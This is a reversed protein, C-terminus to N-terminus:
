LPINGHKKKPNYDVKNELLEFADIIKSRTKHPMIVEDVFGREAALYPNAFKERFEEEFRSSDAEPDKSAAIEKKYIIEIAGKPGMVAIEATPWAFNFDSRIHKSNMVDYAGGYAKRTIVTIKPVTAESFAYLLKAGHKIIGRWEQDTGPLFGPVDEFVALPINFADCFRVFRAGKISSDSDLAGALYEPQNAVIGVSRGDFRAFGIVINKAFDRQIEFFEGEDVVSTIVEKMDYPKERKEPIISDLKPDERNKPDKCEIRPPDELNNQPIYSLLKRLTELCEVENECTFHSVGSKTGHTDAGGLEEATIDEQTVAKVVNPGTVFMYSTNRVMLIFDTIAPSYVAGGACPGMVASIQPIVGSFITNRLFIDAYGGLSVVGEQIRAGGSDNLGIMPAGVKAAMDMIKCIKEAHGEALSGGFVTFDQSFVFVLRGNIKGSGTVVGDGLYREKELGFDHSRHRVFMDMENFSGEDLLIDLRERATLKGKDHQTAIREEGGGARAESVMEEFKKIKADVM